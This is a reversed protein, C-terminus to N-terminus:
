QIRNKIKQRARCLNTRIAIPTLSTIQVIEEVEFEDVDKLRIVQQQLPPLQEIQQYIFRELDKAEAIQHPNKAYDVFPQNEIPETEKTKRLHSIILNKLINIALPKCDGHTEWKERITWLKLWVDQIIDKVDEEVRIKKRALRELDPLIM